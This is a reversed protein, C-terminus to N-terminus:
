NKNLKLKMQNILRIVSIKFQKTLLIKIKHNIKPALKRKYLLKIINNNSISLMKQFWNIEYSWISRIESSLAIPYWLLDDFDYKALEFSEKKYVGVNLKAQLYFSPLLMIQSLLSKLEYSNKLYNSSYINKKISNSLKDFPELYNINKNLQIKFQIKDEPFITKSYKFLEIPFYTPDYNKLQSKKIIFWSHHQLPDFDFILFHSERIFKKFSETNEFEDKLILLGDFDSYNIIENTSVSGHVIVADFLETYSKKILSKLKNVLKFDYGYPYIEINKKINKNKKM